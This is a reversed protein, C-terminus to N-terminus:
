QRTFMGKQFQSLAQQFKEDKRDLEAKLATKNANIQLAELGKKSCEVQENVVAHVINKM